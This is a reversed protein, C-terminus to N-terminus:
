YSVLERNRDFEVQAGSVHWLDNEPRERANIAERVINLEPHQYTMATKVDSDGITSMVVAYGRSFLVARQAPRSRPQPNLLIDRLALAGALSYNLV